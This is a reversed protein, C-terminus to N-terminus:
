IKQTLEETFLKMKTAEGFWVNRPSIHKLDKLRKFSCNRCNCFPNFSCFFILLFFNKVLTYHLCGNSLRLIIEEYQGLCTTSNCLYRLHTIAWNNVIVGNCSQLKHFINKTSVLYFWWIQFKVSFSCDFLNMPFCRLVNFAAGTSNFSSPM